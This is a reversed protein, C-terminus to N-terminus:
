RGLRYTFQPIPERPNVYAGRQASISAESIEFWIGGIGFRIRKSM